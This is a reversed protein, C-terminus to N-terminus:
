SLASGLRDVPQVLGLQDMASRGPLRALGDLQCREFPNRPEVVMSQEFGNAVDRRGLGLCVVPALLLLTFRVM